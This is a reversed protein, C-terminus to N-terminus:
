MESGWTSIAVRKWTNTAVCIYIHSSDVAVQGATGTSSASTPISVTSALTKTALSTEASTLRTKISSNDSKEVINVLNGQM